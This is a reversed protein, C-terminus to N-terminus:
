EVEGLREQVSNADFGLAILAPAVFEDLVEDLTFEDCDREITVTLDKYWEKQEPVTYALTLRM